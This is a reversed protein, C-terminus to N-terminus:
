YLAPCILYRGGALSSPLSLSLGQLAGDAPPSALAGAETSTFPPVQQRWLAPLSGSGGARRLRREPARDSAWGFWSRGAGIGRAGSATSSPTTSRSGPALTSNAM